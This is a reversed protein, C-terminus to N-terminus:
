LRRSAFLAYAVCAAVVIAAGGAFALTWMVM